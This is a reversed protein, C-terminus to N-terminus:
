NAARGSTRMLWAIEGINPDRGLDRWRQMATDVGTDGSWPIFLGSYGDLDGVVLGSRELGGLIARALEWVLADSADPLARRLHWPITWLGVYDEDLERSIKEAVVVATIVQDRTM